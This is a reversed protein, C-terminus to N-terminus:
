FKLPQENIGRLFKSSAVTEKPLTNQRAPRALNRRKKKCFEDNKEVKNSLM